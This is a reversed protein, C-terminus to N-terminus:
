VEWGVDTFLQWHRAPIFLRNEPQVIRWYEQPELLTTQSGDLDIVAANPVRGELLFQVEFPALGLPQAYVGRAELRAAHVDALVTRLTRNRDAMLRAQGPPIVAAALGDDRAKSWFPELHPWVFYPLVAGARLLRQNYSAPRPAPELADAQFRNVFALPETADAPTIFVELSADANLAQRDFELESKFQSAFLGLQRRWAAPDSSKFQALLHDRLGSSLGSMAALRAALAKADWFTEDFAVTSARNSAVPGRLREFPVDLGVLRVGGMELRLSGDLNLPSRSNVRAAFSNFANVLEGGISVSVFWAHVPIAGDM